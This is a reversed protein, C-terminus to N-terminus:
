VTSAYAYTEGLTPAVSYMVEPSRFDYTLGADTSALLPAPRGFVTPPVAAPNVRRYLNYAHTYLEEQTKWNRLLRAQLLAREWYTSVVVHMSMISVQRLEVLGDGHLLCEYAGEPVEIYGGKRDM